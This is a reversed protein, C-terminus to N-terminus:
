GLVSLSPGSPSFCLYLEVKAKDEASSSLPYDVGRRPQRIGLFSVRYGSYLLGPPGGPGTQVPTFFAAGV